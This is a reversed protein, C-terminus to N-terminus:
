FSPVCFAVQELSVQILLRAFNCVHMAFAHLGVQRKYAHVLLFKGEAVCLSLIHMICLQFM